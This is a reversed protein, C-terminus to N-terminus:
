GNTGTVAIVPFVLFRSALEMEGIVPIGAAHAAQVLRPSPPVGPSVLVLDAGSLWAPDEGGLYLRGNPLDSTPLENRTDALLLSAGRSSLFRAAARGSVGLGVVMVRAGRLDTWARM